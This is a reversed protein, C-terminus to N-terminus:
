TLGEVAIDDTVGGRAVIKQGINSTRVSIHTNGSREALELWCGALAKRVGDLPQRCQEIGNRASLAWPIWEGRRDHGVRALDRFRDYSALRDAYVAEVEHFQDQCTALSRRARELDTPHGAAKLADAAAKMCADLRGMVDLIADELHGVLAVDGKPKDEAVTLRLAFLMDYFQRLLTSLERFIGELGM